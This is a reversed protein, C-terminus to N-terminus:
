DQPHATPNGAAIAQILPLHPGVLERFIVDRQESSYSADTVVQVQAAGLFRRQPDGGADRVSEMDPVLGVGPLIMFNAVVLRSQDGATEIEFTYEVGPISVGPILVGPISDEPISDGPSAADPVDGAADSQVIWTRPQADAQTYGNAKYCNPPWHGSLDRADKCQVILFSAWRKQDADFFARSLIANPRLLEVAAKPIDVPRSEWPGFAKPADDTLAYIRQHYAEADEATPFGANALGMAVLLAAALAPGIFRKRIPTPPKSKM